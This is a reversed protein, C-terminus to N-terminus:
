RLLLTALGLFAFFGFCDTATTVFVTSAVAPDVRLSKLILPILAGFLGAIVLNIVMALGLVLALAPPQRLLLVIIAVIVGNICGNAAGALMEKGILFTKQRPTIDSLALGRVAVALAQTGANGGMGAVIPMYVALIAFAAITGQFLSVVFSALFATALNVILWGCRMRIATWPSGLMEEEPNVGAFRYVDETAESEAVRLLDRLHIVGLFQDRDDTVGLVDVRERATVALIREQDTGSRVLPLRLMLTAATAGPSALFLNKHSIFGRVPGGETVVVTPTQRHTERHARVRAVIEPLTAAMPVPLFNLDMLGGATQADYALLKAIKAAKEPKVLHLVASRREEPLVQLFDAADDEENFHLFRALAHDSLKPLIYERNPEDLRLVVEAQTEPPLFAFVKRKGRELVNILHALEGVSRNLLLSRLRVDEKRSLLSDVQAALASGSM